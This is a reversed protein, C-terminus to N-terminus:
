SSARLSIACSYLDDEQPRPELFLFDVVFGLDVFFNEYFSKVFSLSLFSCDPLNYFNSRRAQWLPFLAYDFPRTKINFIVIGGQENLLQPCLSLAEFHECYENSRGFCNMPNDIVLIDCFNRYLKAIEFSDGITIETNKPLNKKLEKGFEGNIEWAYIKKVHQAYHQSQWDGKGAFFDLAVMNNLKVSHDTELTSFIQQIATERGVNHYM